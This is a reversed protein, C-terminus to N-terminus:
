NMHEKISILLFIINHPTNEKVIKGARLQNGNRMLTWPSSNEGPIFPVSPSCRCICDGFSSILPKGNYLVYFTDTGKKRVMGDGTMTVVCCTVLLLTFNKINELLNQLKVLLLSIKKRNTQVNINSVKSGLLLTNKEIRM